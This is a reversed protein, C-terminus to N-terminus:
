GVAVGIDVKITTLTMTLGPALSEATDIIDKEYKSNFKYGILVSPRIFMKDAVSFDAGVGGKIWFQDASYGAAEFASKIDAGTGDYYSLNLDYEIGLMPFITFSGLPVPYKGLASIALWTGNFGNSSSGDTTYSTSNALIGVGAEIYTADIFVKAGYTMNSTTTSSTTGYDDGKMTVSVPSLNVGAGVSLQQAFVVASLCVLVAFVLSKKM